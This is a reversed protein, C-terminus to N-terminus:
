SITGSCESSFLLRHNHHWFVRIIVTLSPQPALVSLHYCYAITTTGSCESSLLLRHNHHWFVRIIVTLLPQPAMVSLHYCYGITTTGSCESSLLLRHNHHWFVWIIIFERKPIAEQHQGRVAQERVARRLQGRSAMQRTTAACATVGVSHTSWVRRLTEAGRQSPSVVYRRRRSSPLVACLQDLGWLIKCPFQCDVESSERALWTKNTSHTSTISLLLKLHWLTNLLNRLTWLYNM